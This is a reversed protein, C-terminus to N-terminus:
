IILKITKNKIYIYVKIFKWFNKKIIVFVNRKINIKKQATGYITISMKIYYNKLKKITKYKECESYIISIFIKYDM